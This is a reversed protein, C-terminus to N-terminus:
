VASIDVSGFSEILIDRFWVRIETLLVSCIYTKNFYGKKSFRSRFFFTMDNKQFLLINLLQCIVRMWYSFWRFNFESYKTGNKIGYSVDFLAKLAHPLLFLLQHCLSWTISYVLVELIDTFAKLFNVFILLYQHYLAGASSYILIRSIDYFVYLFEFSPFLIPSRSGGCLFWNFGRLSETNNLILKIQQQVRM